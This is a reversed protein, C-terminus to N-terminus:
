CSSSCCDGDVNNGDDCQESSTSTTQGISTDVGEFVGNGCNLNCKGVLPCQYPTEIKM